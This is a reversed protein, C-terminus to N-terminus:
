VRQAEEKLPAESLLSTLCDGERAMSLALREKLPAESLLSTLGVM